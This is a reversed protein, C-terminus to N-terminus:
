WENARRKRYPEGCEPCLGERPLGKLDYGCQCSLEVFPNGAITEEPYCQLLKEPGHYQVILDAIDEITCPAHCAPCEAIDNQLPLRKKCKPCPPALYAPLRTLDPAAQGESVSVDNFEKALNVNDLLKKAQKADSPRVVFVQMGAQMGVMPAGCQAEIGHGRLYSVAQMARIPSDYTGVTQM